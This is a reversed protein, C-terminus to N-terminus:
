KGDNLGGQHRIELNNEANGLDIDIADVRIHFSRKCCGDM